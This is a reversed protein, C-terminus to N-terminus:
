FVKFTNSIQEGTRSPLGSSNGAAKECCIFQAGRVTCLAVRNVIETRVEPTVFNLDISKTYACDGYKVCEGRFSTASCATKEGSIEVSLHFKM